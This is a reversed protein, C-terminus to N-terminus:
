LEVCVQNGGSDTQIPGVSMGQPPSKTHRRPRKRSYSPISDEKDFCLLAEYDESKFPTLRLKLKEQYWAIARQLDRVGVAIRDGFYFTRTGWM